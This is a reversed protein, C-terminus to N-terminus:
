RWDPPTNAIIGAVLATTAHDELSWLLAPVIDAVPYRNRRSGLNHLEKLAKARCAPARLPGTL